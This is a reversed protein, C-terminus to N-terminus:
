TKKKIGLQYEPTRVECLIFDLDNKVFVNMQKRFEEQVDKKSMASLYSPTQCVGGLTIANGEGAVQLALECAAQNIATGQLIYGCLWM